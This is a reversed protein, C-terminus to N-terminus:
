SQSDIISFDITYEGKFRLSDSAIEGDVNRDGDEDWIGGDVIGEYMEFIAYYGRRSLANLEDHPIYVNFTNDSGPIYKFFWQRFNADIEGISISAGVNPKLTLKLYIPSKRSDDWSYRNGRNILSITASIGDGKSVNYTSPFDSEKVGFSRFFTNAIDELGSGDYPEERAIRHYEANICKNRQIVRQNSLFSSIVASMDIQSPHNYLERKVTSNIKIATNKLHERLISLARHKKSQIM